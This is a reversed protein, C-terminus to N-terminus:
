ISPRSRIIGGGAEGLWCGRILAYRSGKKEQSYLMKMGRGAKSDKGFV